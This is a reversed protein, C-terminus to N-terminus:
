CKPLYSFCARSMFHFKGSHECPRVSASQPKERARRKTFISTSQQIIVSLSVSVSLSVCLCVSHCLCHSSFSSASPSLEFHPLTFSPSLYSLSCPFVAPVSLCVSLCVSVCVCVCVCVCKPNQNSELVTFAAVLANSTNSIRGVDLTMQSIKCTRRKPNHAQRYPALSECM